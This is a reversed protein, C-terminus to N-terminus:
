EKSSITKVGKVRLKPDKININKKQPIIHNESTNVSIKKVFNELNPVSDNTSNILMNNISEIDHELEANTDKINNLSLDLYEQQYIDKTDQQKFYYILESAYKQFIIQLDNNPYNGKIMDKTLQSIRKRYFKIDKDLKTDLFSQNNKILMNPNLLYELTIKNIYEENDM